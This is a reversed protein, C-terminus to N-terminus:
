EDLQETAIPEESGVAVPLEEIEDEAKPRNKFSTIKEGIFLKSNTLWENLKKFFYEFSFNTAFLLGIIVSFVAVIKAGTFSFLFNVSSFLIAGVMGGGLQSNVGTDKVYSVFHHWSQKLISIDGLQLQLKEFIHIHTFLLIGLFIIIL